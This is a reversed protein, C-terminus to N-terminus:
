PMRSVQVVPTYVDVVAGGADISGRESAVERLWSLKVAAPRELAREQGPPLGWRVRGQSTHMVLRLRGQSDRESVDFAVVEQAFPEQSVLTALSIGAAIEDGEWSEGLRPTPTRLGTILPLNLRESAATRTYTGSLRIGQRDVIYCGDRSEVVAVPTRYLAQAEVGGNSLRRIRTVEAVWASSELAEAAIAVGRQDLRDDTLREAVLARLEKAYLPNMWDPLGVLEVTAPDVPLPDNNQLYRQLGRELPLWGALLTVVVAAVALLQLGRRTAPNGWGAPTQANKSSKRRSGGKKKTSSKNFPWM